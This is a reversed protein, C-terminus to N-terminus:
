RRFTDNIDRAAQATEEITTVNAFGKELRALGRELDKENTGKDIAALLTKFGWVFYKMNKLVLLAIKFTSM